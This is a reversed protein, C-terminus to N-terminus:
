IKLRKKKKKYFGASKQSSLIRKYKLAIRTPFTTQQVPPNPSPFKTFADEEFVSTAKETWPRPPNPKHSKPHTNVPPNLPPVPPQPKPTAPTKKTKKKPKKQTTKLHQENQTPPRTRPPPPPKTQARQKQTKKPKGWKKKDPGPPPKTQTPKKPTPTPPNPSRVRPTQQQTEGAIAHCNRKKLRKEGMSNKTGTFPFSIPSKQRPKGDECPRHVRPLCGCFQKGQDKKRLEPAEGKKGTKTRDGEYDITVPRRSARPPERLFAGGGSGEKPKPVPAPMVKVEWERM